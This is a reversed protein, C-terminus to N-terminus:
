HWVNGPPPPPAAPAAGMPELGAGTVGGMIFGNESDDGDELSTSWTPTSASIKLTSSEYSSAFDTASEASSDVVGLTGLNDFHSNSSLSTTGIASKASSSSMPISKVLEDLAAFRDHGSPSPESVMCNRSATNTSSADVITLDGLLDTTNGFLDNGNGTSDTGMVDSTYDLSLLGDAAEVPRSQYDLAPLDSSFDLFDTEQPGGHLTTIVPATADGLDLLDLPPMHKQAFETAGFANTLIPAVYGTSVSQRTVGDDTFRNKERQEMKLMEDLGHAAGVVAKGDRSTYGSGFGNDAKALNSRTMMSREREMRKQLAYLRVDDTVFAAEQRNGIPVLSNPDAQAQRERTLVQRNTLLRLVKQSAERVPGGKDVGGGKIRMFIGAAGAQQQALLVTNYSQLFDVHKGLFVAEALSKEAGFILVHHVVALAKHLALPTQSAPQSLVRGLAEYIAEALDDDAGALSSEHYTLSALQNLEFSTITQVSEDYLLNNLKQITESTASSKRSLITNLDFM